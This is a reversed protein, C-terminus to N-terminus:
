IKSQPSTMVTHIIHFLIGLFHTSIHLVAKGNSQSESLLAGTMRMKIHEM